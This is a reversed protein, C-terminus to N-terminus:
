NKTTGPQEPRGVNFTQCNLCKMEGNPLCSEPVVNEAMNDAELQAMAIQERTLERLFPVAIIGGVSCPHGVVSGRLITPSGCQSLHSVDWRWSALSLLRNQWGWAPM